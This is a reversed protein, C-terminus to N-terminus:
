ARAAKRKHSSPVVPLSVTDVSIHSSINLLIGMSSMTFILSMGGYSLFPMPVGTPPVLGTVVSAHILMYVAIVMTFGFAMLQGTRDPANLSISMGRYIIFAFILFVLIVGVFGFEEGLVSLIFDTHPEPLYFYKQEGKGLGAGFLGGHGLGVLSQTVQYGAGQSQEEINLFGIVRKMRYAASKILLAAVPLMAAVTLLLHRPKAGAVFLMAFSIFAIIVSTSFDPGLVVLACIIGIRIYHSILSRWDDFDAGKEGCKKALFLILAMRAFDSVQFRVGLLTIWRKAGNVAHSDPLFLVCGLMIVAGIYIRGSYRSLFRYDVNIFFTFLVVAILARTVQRFLFYNAGINKGYAVAFSSSYVLVIGLGLLLLTAVFLGIDMKGGKSLM